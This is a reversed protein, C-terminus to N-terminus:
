IHVTLIEFPFIDMETVYKLAEDETVFIKPRGVHNLIFEYQSFEDTTLIVYKM